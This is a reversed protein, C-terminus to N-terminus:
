NVSCWILLCASPCAHHNKFYASKDRDAVNGHGNSLKFPPVRMQQHDVTHISADHAADNMDCHSLSLIQTALRENELSKM